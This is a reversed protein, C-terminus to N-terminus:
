LEELRAKFTDLAKMTAWAECHGYDSQAAEVLALIEDALCGMVLYANWGRIDRGPGQSHVLAKLEEITM